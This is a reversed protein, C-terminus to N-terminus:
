INVDSEKSRERERKRKRKEIEKQGAMCIFIWNLYFNKENYSV